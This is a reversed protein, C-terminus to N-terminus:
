IYKLTETTKMIKRNLNIDPGTTDDEVSKEAAGKGKVILVDGCKEPKNAKVRISYQRLCNFGIEHLFLYVSWSHNFWPSAKISIYQGFVRVGLPQSAMALSFGSESKM